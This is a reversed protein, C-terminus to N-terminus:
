GTRRWGAYIAEITTPRSEPEITRAEADRAERRREQEALRDCCADCLTAGHAEAGCIDCRLDCYSDPTADDEPEAPVRRLGPLRDPRHLTGLLTPEPTAGCRRCPWGDHDPWAVATRPDHCPLRAEAEGAAPTWTWGPPLHDAVEDPDAGAHLADILDALADADLVDSLAAHAADGLWDDVSTMGEEPALVAFTPEEACRLGGALETAPKTTTTTTM